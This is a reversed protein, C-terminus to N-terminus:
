NRVCKDTYSKEIRKHPPSDRLHVAVLATLNRRPNSPLLKTLFPHRSPLRHSPLSFPLRCLFLSFSRCTVPPYLAFHPRSARPALDSLILHPQNPPSLPTTLRVPPPLSQQHTLAQLSGPLSAFRQAGRPLRTAARRKERSDPHRKGRVMIWVM